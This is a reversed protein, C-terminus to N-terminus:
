KPAAPVVAPAPAPDTGAPAVTLTQEGDVAGSMQVEVQMQGGDGVRRLQVETGDELTGTANGNEDAQLTANVERGSSDRMTVSYSTAYITGGIAVGALALSGAAIWWVRKNSVRMSSSGQLRPSRAGAPWRLGRIAEFARDVSDGPGGAGTGNGADKM